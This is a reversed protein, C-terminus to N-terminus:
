FTKGAAQTKLALARMHELIKVMALTDQRCYQLLASKLRQRKSVEVGGRVMEDWALGAATGDGVDMTDYTMQPILAPLVSKISFSGNFQRHYLHRRIFPLLDWLRERINGIRDAFEPLSDALEALRLSEFGANYVFIKGRNGLAACLSQIFERRPDCDTTALFEFHELEAHGERQRHMSWQFPIHSYPWMGAYRPIAPYLTEFDLFYLPYKLKSLESALTDSTWLRGTKVATCVRTQIETLPFDDPIQEILSVGLDLLDQMKKGALRPIYSIHTIPRAPNCHDFFECRYPDGCQRGPEIVPPASQTLARRQGGLLKPVADGLKRVRRTLHETIFLERCDYSKGDYVYERNLHVLCASSVDIGSNQLVHYQIALDYLYHDKVSVSSKVELLRWRNLRRRQLIDVRVLVNSHRFAAEFIAPVSSDAMLEATRALAAELDDSGSEVLVGGPFASQALVGVAHAKGFRSEQQEDPDGALDPQHVQLYLRKLCQMGSVFKSKSLRVPAAIAM